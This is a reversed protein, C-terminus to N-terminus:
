LNELDEKVYIRLPTTVGQPPTQVFIKRSWANIILEDKRTDNAKRLLDKKYSKLYENIFIRGM